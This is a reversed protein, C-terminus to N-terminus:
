ELPQKLTLYRVKGYQANGEVEVYAQVSWTGPFGETDVRSLQYAIHTTLTGLTPSLALVIEGDWEGTVEDPRRYLIKGNDATPGVSLGTDAKLEFLQGAFLEEQAM